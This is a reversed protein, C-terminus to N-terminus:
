NPSNKGMGDFFVGSPYDKLRSDAWRARGEKEIRLIGTILM